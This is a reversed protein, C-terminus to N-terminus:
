KFCTEMSYESQCFSHILNAEVLKLPDQIAKMRSVERLNQYNDAAFLVHYPVLGVRKPVPEVAKPAPEVSIYVLYWEDPVM